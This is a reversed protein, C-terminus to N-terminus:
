PFGAQGAVGPKLMFLSLAGRPDPFGPPAWALHGQIVLKLSTRRRRLGM